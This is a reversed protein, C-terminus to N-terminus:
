GRQFWLNLHNTVQYLNNLLTHSIM